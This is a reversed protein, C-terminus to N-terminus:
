ADDAALQLLEHAIDARMEAHDTPDISAVMRHAAHHAVDAAHHPDATHCLLQHTRQDCDDDLVALLLALYTRHTQQDTM